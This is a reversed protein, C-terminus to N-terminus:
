PRHGFTALLKYLDDTSIEPSKWYYRLDSQAGSPGSVFRSQEVLTLIRDSPPEVEATIEGQIYSSGSLWGHPTLHYEREWDQCEYMQPGLVRSIHSRLLWLPSRRDLRYPYSPTRLAFTSGIKSNERASGHVSSQNLIAAQRSSFCGHLGTALTRDTHHGVRATWATEVM